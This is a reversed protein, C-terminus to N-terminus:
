TKLLGEIKISECFKSYNDNFFRSLQKYADKADFPGELKLERKPDVWDYDLFYKPNKNEDLGITLIASHAMAFSYNFIGVPKGKGEKLIVESDAENLIKELFAIKQKDIRSSEKSM